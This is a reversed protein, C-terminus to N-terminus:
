SVDVDRSCEERLLVFIPADIWGREDHHFFRESVGELRFGNKKLVKICAENAPDCMAVIRELKIERHLLRCLGELAETGYGRGQQGNAVMFGLSAHYYLAYFQLSFTVILEGGERCFGGIQLRHSKRFGSPVKSQKIAVKVEKLSAPPSIEFEYNREDSWIKNVALSDRRRLIRIELRETDISFDPKRAQSGPLSPVVLFDKCRQCFLLREIHFPKERLPVGCVCRFNHIQECDDDSTAM